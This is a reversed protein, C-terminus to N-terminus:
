VGTGPTLLGTSFGGQGNDYQMDSVMRNDGVRKCLDTMASHNSRQAGYHAASNGWVIPVPNAVPMWYM